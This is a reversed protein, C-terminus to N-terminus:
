VTFLAKRREDLYEPLFALDLKGDERFSLAIGEFRYKGGSYEELLPQMAATESSDWFGAGHGSLSLYVNGGFSRPSGDAAELAELDRGNAFDRFGSLFGELSEVFEPSFDYITADRVEQEEDEPLAWLLTELFSEADQTMKMRNEGTHITEKGGKHREIGAV